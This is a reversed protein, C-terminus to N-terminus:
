SMASRFAFCVNMLKSTGQSESSSRQVFSSKLRDIDSGHKWEDRIGALLRLAGSVKPEIAAKSLLLLPSPKSESQLAGVVAGFHVALFFSAVHWATM